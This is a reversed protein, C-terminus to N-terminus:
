GQTESIVEWMRPDVMETQNIAQVRPGVILVKVRNFASAGVISVVLAVCGPDQRPRILDGVKM